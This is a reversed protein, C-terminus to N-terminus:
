LESVYTDSPHIGHHLMPSPSTLTESEHRNEDKFFIILSGEAHRDRNDSSRLVQVNGLLTSVSSNPSDRESVIICMIEIEYLDDNIKVDLRWVGRCQGEFAFTPVQPM